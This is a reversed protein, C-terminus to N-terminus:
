LDGMDALEAGAISIKPAAPKAADYLVLQVPAPIQLDELHLRLGLAGSSALDMSWFSSGDYLRLWTSSSGAESGVVVPQELVRGLGIQLPGKKSSIERRDLEKLTSQSLPGLLIAHPSAPLISVSSADPNESAAFGSWGCFVLLSIVPRLSIM